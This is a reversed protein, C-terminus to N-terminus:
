AAAASRLLGGREGMSRVVPMTSHLHRILQQGEMFDIYRRWVQGELESLRHAGVAPVVSDPNRFIGM